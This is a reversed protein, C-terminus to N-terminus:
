RPRVVLTLSAPVADLADCFLVGLRAGTPNKDATWETLACRFGSILVDGGLRLPLAHQPALQFRRNLIDSAALTIRQCFELGHANMSPTRDVLACSILAQEIWPETATKEIAAVLADRSLAFLPQGTSEIVGLETLFASWLDQTPAMAVEEKNAFYRFFTRKSVTVSDCLEDLTVGDFGRESFLALASEVLDARTRQKKRERLGLISTASAITM